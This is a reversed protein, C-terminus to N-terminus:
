ERAIRAKLMQEEVENKINGGSYNIKFIESGWPEGVAEEKGIGEKSKCELQFVYNLM